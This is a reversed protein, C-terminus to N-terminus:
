EGFVFAVAALFREMELGTMGPSSGPMWTEGGSLHEVPPVVHIGPVLGPMVFFSETIGNSEWRADGVDRTSHWRPTKRIACPM